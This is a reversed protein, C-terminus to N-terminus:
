ECPKSDERRIREQQREHLRERLEDCTVPVTMGTTASMRRDGYWAGHRPVTWQRHARTFLGKSARAADLVSMVGRDQVVTGSMWDRPRVDAGSSRVVYEGTEGDTYAYSKPAPGEWELFRCKLDWEGLGDGADDPPERRTTWLSDTDCYVADRGHRVMEAHHAARSNSLIYAAWHIHGSDSLRYFPVSWMEGWRDLQEWAGCVCRSVSCPSRFDCGVIDKLPPHMRLFRKDPREALKGVFSNPFLRLWKGWATKKGLSVRLDFIDQVWRGFVREEGEWTIAWQVSDIKCGCSDAYRLEALTWCGHVTGYPFSIGSGWGWPLPPIQCDPVTVTCAYIGPEDRAMAKLADHSGLQSHAGVPLYTNGLAAPYASSIDWHSGAEHVIPRFITTRGGYYASRILSWDAGSFPCDPLDMVRRLTAWSSGGITGTLDLDHEDAFEQVALLGLMTTETDQVCVETLRDIMYQPMGKYISCYGGCDYGCHCDFWPKACVTKGMEALAELGMPVLAYSDRVTIGGGMARTIRSGSLSISQGIGRRRLIELVLLGDYKGSNHGWWVGGVELMANVLSDPNKHVEVRGTHDRTM